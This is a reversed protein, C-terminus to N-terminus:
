ISRGLAAARELADTSAIEGKKYVEPVAIIGRQEWKLFDAMGKYVGILGNFIDMGECEGCALLVSERIKLPRICADSCYAYLRDIAVKLQASMSSWYLPTSFVIVDANELLPELESFDDRFFCATGKSWCNDCAKCGGIHRDAARFKHVTHGKEQAGRVFADALMDSNGNKRPSGTMVLINKMIM